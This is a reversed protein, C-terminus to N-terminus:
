EDGERGEMELSHARAEEIPKFYHQRRGSMERDFWREALAAARLTRESAGAGIVIEGFAQRAVRALTRWWSERAEQWRTKDKALKILLHRFESELHSWYRLEPALGEVRKDLPNPKKATRKYGNKKEIEQQLKMSAARKEKKLLPTFWDPNKEDCDPILCLVTFRRVSGVLALAISESTKLAVQLHACLEGDSLYRLPLPLREHRWLLLKAPDSRKTTLGFYDVPFIADQPLVDESRLYELWDFMLPKSQEVTLTRVNRFLAHSERWLARNVDFNIPKFGAPKKPDLVKKFALMTEQYVRKDQYNKEFRYGKIVVAQKIILFGNEASPEGLRIRRSQWTLLDLYGDPDRVGGGQTPTNREWAPKGRDDALIEEADLDTFFEDDYWYLNLLLTEFLNSGRVLSVACNILPAAAASHEGHEVVGPETAKTGGFDFSQYAVLWRAAQETTLHPSTATNRVGFFAATSDSEFTLQTVSDKGEEAKTQRMDRAQYFPHQKDFLDFRNRFKDLYAGIKTADFEGQQHVEQWAEPDLAGLSRHLVALLLRHLAITVPPSDGVIEAIEHARTLIEELNFNQLKREASSAMRCPVWPETTLNFSPM